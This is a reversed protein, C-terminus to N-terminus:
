VPFSRGVQIAKPFIKYFADPTLGCVVYDRDHVTRKMLMDRVSGGVSYASGGADKVKKFFTKKKM